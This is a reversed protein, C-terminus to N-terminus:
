LGQTHPKDIKQQYPRQWSDLTMIFLMYFNRRDKWIEGTRGKDWRLVGFHHECFSDSQHAVCLANLHVHRLFLIQNPVSILILDFSSFTYHASHISNLKNTWSPFIQAVSGLSITLMIPTPIELKIYQIFMLECNIM